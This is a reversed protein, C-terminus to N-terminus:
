AVLKKVLPIRILVFVLGFSVLYVGLAVLPIGILVNPWLAYIGRKACEFFYIDRVAMHILYLGLTTPAVYKAVFRGPRSALWNEGFSNVIILWACIALTVRVPSLFDYFLFGLSPYPKNGYHAVLIGTGGALLLVCSIALLWCGILANKSLKRDRLLYGLMFYGLFPVFRAFMSQEHPFIGDLVSNATSFGLLLVVALTVTKRSAFTLFERL